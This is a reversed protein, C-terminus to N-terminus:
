YGLNNHQGWPQLGPGKGKKMMKWKRAMAGKSISEVPRRFLMRERPQRQGPQRQEAKRALRREKSKGRMSPAATPAQYPNPWAENITM